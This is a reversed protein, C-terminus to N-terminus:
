LGFRLAVQAVLPDLAELTIGDNYLCIDAAALRQARSAQGAMVKEVDARSWGNRAVVRDIQSAEECDVVLVRDVQQRWRGSEVLLPVDYVICANGAQAAQRQVEQGVLPHVIAELQYKAAPDSFARQRMWERNMAGDPTLVQVGFQ